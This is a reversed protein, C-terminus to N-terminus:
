CAQPKAQGYRKLMIAHGRTRQLRYYKCIKGWWMRHRRSKKARHFGRVAHQHKADIRQRAKWHEMPMSPEPRQMFWDPSIMPLIPKKEWAIREQNQRQIWVWIHPRVLGQLYSTKSM